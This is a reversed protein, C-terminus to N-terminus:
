NKAESRVEDGSTLRIYHQFIQDIMGWDHVQDMCNAMVRKNGDHKLVFNKPGNQIGKLAYQVCTYSWSGLGVKPKGDKDSGSIMSNKVEAAIIAPLKFNCIFDTTQMGPKLVLKGPDLEKEYEDWDTGKNEETEDGWDLAPDQKCVIKLNSLPRSGTSIELM